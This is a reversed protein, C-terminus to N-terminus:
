YKCKMTTAKVTELVYFLLLFYIDDNYRWFVLVEMTSLITNNFTFEM